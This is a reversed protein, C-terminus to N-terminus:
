RPSGLVDVILMSKIGGSGDDDDGESPPDEPPPPDDNNRNDKKPQNLELLNLETRSWSEFSTLDHRNLEADDSFGTSSFRMTDNGLDYPGFYRHLHWSALHGLELERWATFPSGVGLLFQVTNQVNGGAFGSTPKAIGFKMLELWLKRWEHNSTKSDVHAGIKGTDQAQELVAEAFSGCSPSAATGPWRWQNPNSSPAYNLPDNFLALFAWHKYNLHNKKFDAQLRILRKTKDARIFFFDPCGELLEIEKKTSPDTPLGIAPTALKKAQLIWMSIFDSAHDHRRIVVALDGLERNAPNIGPGIPAVKAIKDLWVSTLKINPTGLGKELFDRLLALSSLSLIGRLYDLEHPVAVKKSYAAGNFFREAGAKWLEFDIHEASASPFPNTTWPAPVTAM